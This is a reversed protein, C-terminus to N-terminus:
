EAPPKGKAQMIVTYLQEALLNELLQEM